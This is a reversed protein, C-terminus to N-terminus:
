ECPDDGREVPEGVGQRRGLSSRRCSGGNPRESRVRDPDAFEFIRGDPNPMSGVGHLIARRFVPRGQPTKWSWHNMVAEPGGPEMRILRARDGISIYAM